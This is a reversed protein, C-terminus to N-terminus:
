TVPTSVVPITSATTTRTTPVTPASATPASATPASATPASTTTPGPVTSTATTEATGTTIAWYAVAAIAALAMTFAITRPTVLRRPPKGSTAAGAASSDAASGLQTSGAQDPTNKGPTAKSSSLRRPGETRLAPQTALGNDLPRSLTATPDLPADSSEMFTPVHQSASLAANDDSMVDVVIVSINDKSGNALAVRILDRCADVPDAFRRLIGGIQTIDVEGCLGDSCLLYRDGSVPLVELIDVELNPEVGVARTLVSRQRHTRAEDETVHGERILESVLNHDETLQEVHGARMRYTRSDGVNAVSLREEGDVRILAIATVTTGMGNLDPDTQSRDFISANAQLVADRLNESNSIPSGVFSAVAMEAATAGGRHGGMGDAVVYVGLTDDTHVRDQNM